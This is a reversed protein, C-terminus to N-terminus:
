LEEFYIRQSEEYELPKILKDWKYPNFQFIPQNLGVSIPQGSFQTFSTTDQFDDFRSLNSFVSVNGGTPGIIQSLGLEVDMTNNNIERFAISGDPQTVPTVSKNYSPLTGTLVLQPNYNSRFTKYRWYNNEKRTEASLWAPSKSRALQVVDDLSYNNTQAMVGSVLLFASITLTLFKNM